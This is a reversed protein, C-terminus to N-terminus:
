YWNNRRHFALARSPSGYRRKIYEAMANVQYAPDSSKRFGYNGWTSDLFQGIGFATSTPNQALNNWGSEKMGLEYWAAQESSGWGYKPAVQQAYRFNARPNSPINGAAGRGVSPQQLQPSQYPQVQQSLIEQLRQMQRFQQKAQETAVTQRGMRGIQQLEEHFAIFQQPQVLRADPAKVRAGPQLEPPPGQQRIREFQQRFSEETSPAESQEQGVSPQQQVPQLQQSQNPQQQAMQQYFGPQLMTLNRTRRQQPAVVRSSPAGPLIAM